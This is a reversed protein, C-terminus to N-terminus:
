FLNQQKLIVIHLLPDPVDQFPSRAIRYQIAVGARRINYGVFFQGRKKETAIDPTGLSTRFLQDVGAFLKADTFLQPGNKDSRFRWSCNIPATMNSPSGLRGGNIGIQEKLFAVWNGNMLKDSASADPKSSVGCGCLVLSVFLHVVLASSNVAERM